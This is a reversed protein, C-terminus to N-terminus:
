TKVTHSLLLFDLSSICYVHLFPPHPSNLLYQSVNYNSRLLALCYKFSPNSYKFRYKLMKLSVNYLFSMLYKNLGTNFTKFQSKLWGFECSSMEFWIKVEFRLRFIEFLSADPKGFVLMIQNGNSFM